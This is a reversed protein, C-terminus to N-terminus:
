SCSLRWKSNVTTAWQKGRYMREIGRAIERLNLKVELILIFREIYSPTISLRRRVASLLQVNKEYKSVQGTERIKELIPWPVLQESYLETAAVVPDLITSALSSFYHQLAETATNEESMKSETSIPVIQFSIQPEDIFHYM